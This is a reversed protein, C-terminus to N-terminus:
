DELLRQWHPASMDFPYDPNKQKVREMDKVRRKVLARVMSLTEMNYKRDYGAPLPTFGIGTRINEPWQGLIAIMQVISNAMGTLGYGGELAGVIRADLEAATAYLREALFSYARDTLICNPTLPDDFHGDFGASLLILGPKFEQALPILLQDIIYQYGEDPMGSPYPLNFNYGEGDGLGIHHVMGAERAYDGDIHMSFYIVDPDELFVQNTHKGHHADCDVILIRDVNYNERAYHAGIAINNFLCITNNALHGPPRNIAFASRSRGNRFVYDIGTLVSGVSLLAVDYSEYRLESPGSQRRLGSEKELRLSEKRVTEV